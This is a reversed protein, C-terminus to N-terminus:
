VARSYTNVYNHRGQLYVLRLLDEDDYEPTAETSIVMKAENETIPIEITAKTSSESIVDTSNRRHLSTLIVQKKKVNKKIKNSHEKECLAAHVSLSTEQVEQLLKLQQKISSM